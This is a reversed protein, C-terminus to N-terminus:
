KLLGEDFTVTFPKSEDEPRIEYAQLMRAVFMIGNREAMHRGPCQRYFANTLLVVRGYLVSSYNGEELDSRCYIWILYTMWVLMKKLFSANQNSCTPM